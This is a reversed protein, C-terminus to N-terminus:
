AEGFQRSQQQKRTPLSCGDEKLHDKDLGFLAPPRWLATSRLALHM